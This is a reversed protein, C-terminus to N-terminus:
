QPTSIFRHSSGAMRKPSPSPHPVGYRNTHKLSLQSSYWDPQFCMSSVYAWRADYRQM